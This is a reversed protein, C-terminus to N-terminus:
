SLEGLPDLQRPVRFILVKRPARTFAELEQGILERTERQNLQAQVFACDVGLRVVEGDDIVNCVDRLLQGIPPRRSAVSDIFEGWVDQACPVDLVSAGM